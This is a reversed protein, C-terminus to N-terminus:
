IRVPVASQSGGNKVLLGLVGQILGLLVIAPILIRGNGFAGVVGLAMPGLVLGLEWSLNASSLEGGQGASGISRDIILTFASSMYVGMGFAFTACATLSIVHGSSIYLAISSAAVTLTGTRIAKMRGFRDSLLGGAIRGIILGVGFFIFAPGIPLGNKIKSIAPMFAQLSGILAGGIVLGALLDFNAFRRMPPRTSSSSQPCSILFFFSSAAIIVFTMWLPRLGYSHAVFLGLSPGGVVCLGVLGGEVGRMAGRKDEPVSDAIWRATATTFFAFASGHVIRSLSLAFDGMALLYGLGCVLQLQAAILALKKVSAQNLIKLALMRTGIAGVAFSGIVTGVIWTPKGAQFMAYPLAAIILCFGGHYILQSAVFKTLNLRMVEPKAM